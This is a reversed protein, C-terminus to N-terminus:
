QAPVLQATRQTAGLKLLRIGSGPNSPPSHGTAFPTWSSVVWSAVLHVVDPAAFISGLGFKSLPRTDSQKKTFAPM